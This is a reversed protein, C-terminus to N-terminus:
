LGQMKDVVKDLITKIKETAGQVSKQITDAEHSASVPNKGKIRAEITCIKDAVGEKHGNADKVHVDIRTLYEDFRGLSQHISEEFYNNRRENGEINHDTFIHITM